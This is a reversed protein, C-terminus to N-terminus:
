RAICATFKAEVEKGELVILHGYIFSGEMTEYYDFTINSLKIFEETTRDPMSAEANESIYLAALRMLQRKMNNMASKREPKHKPM